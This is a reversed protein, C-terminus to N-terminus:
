EFTQAFTLRNGDPDLVGFERLGWPQSVPSSQVDAGSRVFEAHLADADRVYFSASGIGCHERTRKILLLRVEDCDMVGLDDQEYNVSFGLVDRYHRISSAVNDCPLEPMIQRMMRRSREASKAHYSQGFWIVHGDPDRVEFVRRKLWNVKELESPEGGRQKVAAHMGAVDNTDFFIVASGPARGRTSFDPAHDTDGFRIRARGSVLEVGGDGGQRSVAFGLVGTWFAVTRNVDRAGLWRSVPAVIEPETTQPNVTSVHDVLNPWSDFGHERAISLQAHALKTEPKTARMEVLREKALKRLQDLSPRAPLPSTSDSM